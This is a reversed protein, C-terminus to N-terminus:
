LEAQYNIAYMALKVTDEFRGEQTSGLVVVAVPSGIGADFIIGLNGGALDTFGTKSGVIGIIKDISKNTNTKTISGLTAIKDTTCRMLTPYDNYISKLLTAQDKASGYGGAFTTTIDLGSANLYFTQRMGLKSALINMGTVGGTTKQSIIEAEENSSAVLTFCSEQADVIGESYASYVTMLKTLSALPLQAHSNKELIVKNNEIDYVIYAKAEVNPVPLNSGALAPLGAILFASLLIITQPYTRM